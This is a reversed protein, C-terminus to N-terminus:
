SATKLISEVKLLIERYCTKEIEWKPVGGHLDIGNTTKIDELLTDASYRAVFQGLVKGDVCEGYFYGDTDTHLDHDADYFEILPEADDHVLCMDRGFRDGEFVVRVTWDQCRAMDTITFVKEM